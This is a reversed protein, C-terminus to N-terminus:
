KHGIGIKLSAKVVPSIGSLGHGIMPNAAGGFQKEEMNIRVAGAGLGLDANRGLPLTKNLMLSQQNITTSSGQTTNASLMVGPAIKGEKLAVSGGLKFASEVATQKGPQQGEYASAAGTVVFPLFKEYYSGTANADITKRLEGVGAEIAASFKKNEVGANLSAGTYRVSKAVSVETTIHNTGVIEGPKPGIMGEKYAPNSYPVYELVSGYDYLDRSITTQELGLGASVKLPTNRLATSFKIGGKTSALDPNASVSRPSYTFYSAAHSTKGPLVTNTQEAYVESKINNNSSM